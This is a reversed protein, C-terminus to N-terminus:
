ELRAFKLSVRMMGALTATLHDGMHDVVYRDMIQAHAARSM